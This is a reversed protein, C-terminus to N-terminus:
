GVVRNGPYTPLPRQRQSDPWLSPNNHRSYELPRRPRRPLTVLAMRERFQLHTRRNTCVEEGCRSRIILYLLFALSCRPKDNPGRFQPHISGSLPGKSSKSLRNPPRHNHPQLIPLTSLRSHHRHRRLGAQRTSRHPLRRVPLAATPRLPNTHPNPCLNRTAHPAHPPYPHAQQLRQRGHQLPQSLHNVQARHSYKRSFNPHFPVNESSSSFSQASILELLKSQTVTVINARSEHHLVFLPFSLNAQQEQLM